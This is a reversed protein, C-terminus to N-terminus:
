VRLITPLTLHTYSVAEAVVAAARHELDDGGLALFRELADTYPGVADPDDALATTWRDLAASAADVGTRRALYAMLTEDERADPEQPLLGVELRAPAREVTGADPQDIGALVRLMTSKGIGNRGIVGVRDRGDVLLDIGHLVTQGALSRSVGRARLM